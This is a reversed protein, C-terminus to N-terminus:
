FAIEKLVNKKTNNLIKRIENYSNSINTDFLAELKVFFDECSFASIKSNRNERSRTPRVHDRPLPPFLRGIAPEVTKSDTVKDFAKENLGYPYITRLRKIWVDEKAKRTKLM